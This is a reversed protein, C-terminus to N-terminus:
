RPGDAQYSCFESGMSISRRGYKLGPRQLVRFLMTDAGVTFTTAHDIFNLDFGLKCLARQIGALFSSFEQNLYIVRNQEFHILLNRDIRIPFIHM